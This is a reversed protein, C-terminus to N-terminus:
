KLTLAEEMVEMTVEKDYKNNSTAGQPPTPLSDGADAGSSSMERLTSSEFFLGLQGDEAEEEEEMSRKRRMM